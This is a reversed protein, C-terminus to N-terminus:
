ENFLGGVVSARMSGGMGPRLDIQRASATTAKIGGIAQHLIPIMGRRRDVPMEFRYRGNGTGEQPSKLFVWVQTHFQIHFV